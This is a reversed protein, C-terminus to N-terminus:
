QDALKLELLFWDVNSFKVGLARFLRPDQKFDYHVKKNELIAKAMDRVEANKSRSLNFDPDRFNNEQISERYVHNRLVPMDLLKIGESTGGIIDGKQNILVFYGEESELFSGIAEGIPLDIGMVASLEEEVYIPYVLSFIWGKGAPDIYADPLWVTGKSPNHALDAEYYFNFSTIDINPDVINKADFAPYIRSAQLASNSFIQVVEPHKSIYNAFLSDLSNTILILEKGKERDKSGNLLIITSLTSDEGPKNTSFNGEITYKFPGPHALISDRKELLLQHHAGIVKLDQSLRRMHGEVKVIVQILSQFDEEQPGLSANQCANSFFLFTAVLFHSLFKKM